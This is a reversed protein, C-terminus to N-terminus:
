KILNSFLSLLFFIISSIFIFRSLDKPLLKLKLLTSFTPGFTLASNNFDPTIAIDKDRAM